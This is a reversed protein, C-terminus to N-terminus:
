GVEAADVRAHGRDDACLIIVASCGAHKGRIRCKSRRVVREVRSNQLERRLDGELVLPAQIGTSHRWLRFKPSMPRHRTKKWARSFESWHQDLSCFLEEAAKM